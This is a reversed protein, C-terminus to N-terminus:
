RPPATPCTTPSVAHWASWGARKRSPCRCRTAITSPTWQELQDTIFLELHERTIQDVATPLARATLFADLLAVSDCYSKITKPSRNRARLSTRFEGVLQALSSGDARGALGGLLAVSSLVV